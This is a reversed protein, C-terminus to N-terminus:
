NVDVVVNSKYQIAAERMEQFLYSWRQERSYIQEPHFQTGFVWSHQESEIAEIYYEPVSHGVAKLGEGLQDIVQRHRSNVGIVERGIIRALKSQEELVIEHMLVAGDLGKIEQHHDASTLNRLTGAFAENLMQMGRCVGLVPMDLKLAEKLLTMEFAFRENGTESLRSTPSLKKHLNLYGGGSMLLGDLKSLYAQVESPDKLVPLLIPHMGHEELTQIYDREVYMLSHGPYLDEETGNDVHMTVGIWPKM